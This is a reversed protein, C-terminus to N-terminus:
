DLLPSGPLIKGIVYGDEFNVFLHEDRSAYLEYLASEVRGRIDILTVVWDDNEDLPLWHDEELLSDIIETCAADDASLVVGLDVADSIFVSNLEDATRTNGGERQVLVEIHAECPGYDEDCECTFGVCDVATCCGEHIDSIGDLHSTHRADWEGEDFGFEGGCIACTENEYNM